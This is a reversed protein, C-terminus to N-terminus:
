LLSWIWDVALHIGVAGAILTVAEAATILLVLPAEPWSWWGARRYGDKSFMAGWRVAAWMVWRKVFGVGGEHMVRRFLGDIDVSSVPAPEANKEHQWKWLLSLLWDHLVAAKEYVGFPPIWAWFIRPSTALDTLFGRRIPLRQHKGVYVSDNTVRYEGRGVYFLDPAPDFPM